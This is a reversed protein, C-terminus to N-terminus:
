CRHVEKGIEGGRLYHEEIESWSYDSGIEGETGDPYLLFCGALGSSRHIKQAEDLSLKKMGNWTYAM